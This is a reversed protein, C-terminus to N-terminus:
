LKSIRLNVIQPSRAGNSVFSVVAVHFFRVLKLHVRLAEILFVGSDCHLNLGRAFTNQVTVVFLNSFNASAKEAGSMESTKGQIKPHSCQIAVNLLM